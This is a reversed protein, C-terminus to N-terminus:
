SHHLLIQQGLATNLLYLLLLGLGLLCLLIWFRAKESM